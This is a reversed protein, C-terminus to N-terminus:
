VFFLLVSILAAFFCWVSIFAQLYAITSVFYSAVLIVGMIHLPTSQVVFFPVLTTILYLSTAAIMGYLSTPIKYVIHHNIITATITHNYLFFLFLLSASCGILTLAALYKKRHQTREYLFLVSPAWTPWVCFAFFLFCYTWFSRTAYLAQTTHSLWLLGEFAQQIAFICPTFFILRIKKHKAYELVCKIIGLALLVTTASFSAQASFCM